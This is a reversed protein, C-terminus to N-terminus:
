ALERSKAASAGESAGSSGRISATTHDPHLDLVSRCEDEAQEADRSTADGSTRTMCSAAESPAGLLWGPESNQLEQATAKFDNPHTNKKRKELRQYDVWPQLPEKNKSM